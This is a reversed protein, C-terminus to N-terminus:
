LEPRTTGKVIRRIHERTYGTLRVLEIQMVGAAAAARVADYVAILARDANAQAKAYALM